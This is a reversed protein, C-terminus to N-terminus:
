GQEIERELKVEEEKMRAIEAELQAIQKGIVTELLEPKEAVLTHLEYEASERLQNTAEIVALIERQLSEWLKRLQGIQREDAFDLNTWGQRLIFGQPDSAIQRLTELDGNDKALNLTATLKGYTEQKDPESAFRDPHYLSVLKKWLKKLETEDDASLTRKSEMARATEEYDAENQAEAKQFEEEVGAAEEEGERLLTELFRRRYELVLRLRDREQHWPRLGAFLRAQLADVQAKEMTYVVELEALRVRASEVLRQLEELEPNQYITPTTEFEM